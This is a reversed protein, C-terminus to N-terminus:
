NKLVRSFHLYTPTFGYSLILILLLGVSIDSGWFFTGIILGLAYLPLGFRYRKKGESFARGLHRYHADFSIMQMTAIGVALGILVPYNSFLILSCIIILGGATSPVGNFYEADSNAKNLTFYLLRSLTFLSYFLGVVIATLDSGLVFYLAFGPAIGYNVGDAVDDSYVGWRTGGWKRAAAGDLGDFLGGIILLLLSMELKGKYAFYISGLGCLLNAASILDAIFRKQFLNFNHLVVIGSFAINLYLLWEVFELRVWRSDWGQSLLLMALLATYSITTRIRNETTGRKLLYQIFLLSDIIIKGLLLYLPIIGVLQWSIIIILPYDTVRDFIRGFKSDLGQERAIVGDLYDLFSFVLFISIVLFKSHPFIAIQKFALLLAPTVIFLKLASLWNPHWHCQKGLWREWNMIWKPKNVLNSRVINSREESAQTKDTKAM